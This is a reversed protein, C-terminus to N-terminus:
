KRLREGKKQSSTTWYIYKKLNGDWIWRSQNRLVTLAFYSVAPLGVLIDMYTVVVMVLAQISGIFYVDHSIFSPARSFTERRAWPFIWSVRRKSCYPGVAEQLPNSAARNGSSCTVVVVDLSRIGRVVRSRCHSTGVNPLVSLLRRDRLGTSVPFLTSFQWAASAAVAQARTM